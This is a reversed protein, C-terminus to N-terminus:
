AAAMIASAVKLAEVAPAVEHARVIEAGKLACVAAALASARDRQEAPVGGLIQGLFAKRSLAILSRYGKPVAEDFRKILSLNHDRNKGFGIGPDLIVLRPDVGLREAERAREALFERVEGVVDEYRPDAQMTRPEGLMHMLIVPVKLRAALPLLEPDGRGAYIDNIISAGAAVAKEAVAAKYTDVSIPPPTELRRLGDLVPELRRWEEDAPTPLSGPRTTEAGLDLIDAGERIHRRALDLAKEPQLYRGGDSFSDPTVNIIGM